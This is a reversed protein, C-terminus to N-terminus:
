RITARLRRWPTVRSGIRERLQLRPLLLRNAIWRRLRLPLPRTLAGGVKVWRMGRIEISASSLAKRARGRAIRRAKGM